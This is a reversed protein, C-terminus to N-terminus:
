YAQKCVLVEIVKWPPTTDYAYIDAYRRRKVDCDSLKTHSRCALTCLVTCYRISTQLTLSGHVTASIFLISILTRRYKIRNILKLLRSRKDPLSCFQGKLIEELKIWIPKVQGICSHRLSDQRTVAMEYILTLILKDSLQTGTHTM